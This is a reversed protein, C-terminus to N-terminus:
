RIISKVYTAEAKQECQGIEKSIIRKNKSRTTSACMIETENRNEYLNM